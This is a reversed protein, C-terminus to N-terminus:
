KSRPVGAIFMRGEVRVAIGALERFHAYDFLLVWSLTAAGGMSGWEDARPPNRQRVATGDSRLLWVQLGDGSPRRPTEGKWERVTAGAVDVKLFSKEDMLVLQVDPAATWSISRSTVHSVDSAQPSPRSDLAHIERFFMQGDLGIVVGALEGRPTAVFFFNMQDPQAPGGGLSIGDPPSSQKLATGDARLLWVQLHRRTLPNPNKEGVPTPRGNVRVSTGAAQAFVMISTIDESVPGSMLLNESTQQREASGILLALVALFPMTHAKRRM